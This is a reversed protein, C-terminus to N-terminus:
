SKSNRNSKGLIIEGVELMLIQTKLVVEVISSGGEDQICLKRPQIRKKAAVTALTVGRM